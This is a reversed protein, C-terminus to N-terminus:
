GPTCSVAFVYRRRTRGALAVLQQYPTERSQTDRSLRARQSPPAQRGLWRSLLSALLFLCASLLDAPLQPHSNIVLPEYPIIFHYNSNDLDHYYRNSIYTLLLQGSLDLGPSPIPSHGRKYTGVGPSRRFAMSQIELSICAGSKSRHLELNPCDSEQYPSRDRHCSATLTLGLRFYWCLLKTHRWTDNVAQKPM